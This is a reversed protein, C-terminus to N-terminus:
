RRRFRPNQALLPCNHVGGDVYFDSRRPTITLESPFAMSRRRAAISAASTTPKLRNISASSSPV